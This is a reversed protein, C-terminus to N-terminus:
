SQARCFPRGDCCSHRVSRSSAMVTEAIEEAVIEPVLEDEAEDGAILKLSKRCRISPLETTLQEVMAPTTVPMSVEVIVGASSTFPTGTLPALMM